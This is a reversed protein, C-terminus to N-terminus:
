NIYSVLQIGGGEEKEGGAVVEEEEEDEESEEATDATISFNEGRQLAARQEPFQM